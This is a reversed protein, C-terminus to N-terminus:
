TVGFGKKRDQYRDPTAHFFNHFLAFLKLFVTIKGQM